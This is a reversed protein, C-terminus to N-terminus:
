KINLEIRILKRFINETETITSLDNIGNETQFMIELGSAVDLTLGNTLSIVQDLINDALLRSGPNAVGKYSTIIDLLISSDWFNECKNQKLVQNTQTSMIVYFNSQVNKSPIRTDYCPITNGDVVMNNIVTHIAKRVWKDPLSKNM